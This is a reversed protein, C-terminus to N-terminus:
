PASDITTDQVRDVSVNFSETEYMKITVNESRFLNFEDQGTIIPLDVEVNQPNQERM